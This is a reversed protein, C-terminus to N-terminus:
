AADLPQEVGCEPCRASKCGRLHYGCNLCHGAPPLPLLFGTRFGLSLALATLLGAVAFPIVIAIPLQSFARTGLHLSVALTVFGLVAAVCYFVVASKRWVPPFMDRVFVFSAAGSIGFVAAFFVRTWFDDWAGFPPYGIGLGAGLASMLVTVAFPPVWFIDRALLKSAVPITM